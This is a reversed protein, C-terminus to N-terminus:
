LLAAEIEDAARADPALPSSAQVSLNRFYQGPVSDTAGLFISSAFPLSGTRAVV